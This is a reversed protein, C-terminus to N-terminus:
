FLMSIFNIHATVKNIGTDVFKEKDITQFTTAAKRTGSLCFYQMEEKSKFWFPHKGCGSM